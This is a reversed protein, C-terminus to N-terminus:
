FCGLFRKGLPEKMRGEFTICFFEDPNGKTCALARPPNPPICCYCVYLLLLFSFSLKM